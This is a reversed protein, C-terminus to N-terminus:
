LHLPSRDALGQLGRALLAYVALIVLFATKVVVPKAITPLTVTFSHRLL